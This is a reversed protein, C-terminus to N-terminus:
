ADNQRGGDNVDPTLWHFLDRRSMKKQMLNAGPEQATPDQDPKGGNRQFLRVMVERAVDRATQQDPFDGVASFLAASQHLGAQTGECTDFEYRGSPLDWETKADPPHGSWDDGDAPLLILNMFWPTILVGLQRGGWDRFGVAEVSLNDNYLPLGRMREDAILRYDSLLKDVVTTM